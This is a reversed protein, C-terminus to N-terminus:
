DCVTAAPECEMKMKDRDRSQVGLIFASDAALKVQKKGRKCLNGAFPGLVPILFRSALACVGATYNPPASPGVIGSDIRNQMAQFEPDFKPDRNDIAHDVAIQDVGALTCGAPNFTSNACVTLDFACVGNVTGDADCMEGDKCRYRKPKEPPFNVDADFVMLCDKRAGGGGGLVVAEAVSGGLLAVILSAAARWRCAM